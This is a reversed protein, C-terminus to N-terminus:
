AVQTLEKLSSSSLGGIRVTEVGDNVYVVTPISSINYEKALQPNEDTNVRIIKVQDGYEDEFSDLTKSFGRCPGCWPAWFDLLIPQNKSDQLLEQRSM